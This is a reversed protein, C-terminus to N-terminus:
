LIRKAINEFVYNDIQQCVSEVNHEKLKDRMESNIHALIQSSQYEIALWSNYTISKIRDYIKSFVELGVKNALRKLALLQSSDTNLKTL